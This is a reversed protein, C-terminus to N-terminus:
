IDTLNNFINRTRQNFFNKSTLSESRSIYDLFNNKKINESSELSIPRQTNNIKKM